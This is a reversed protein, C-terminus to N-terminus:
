RRTRLKQRISERLSWALVRALEQDSVSEIYFLDYIQHLGGKFPYATFSVVVQSAPEHETRIAASALVNRVILSSRAARATAMELAKRIKAEHM